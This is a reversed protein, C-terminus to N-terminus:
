DGEFYSWQVCVCVCKTCRDQWQQFCLRFAENPIKRLEATANSKIDEMTVFRTGKLGIQLTPFLWFDSPALDPSYPTHTPSSLFAKRPLEPSVGRCTAPLTTEVDRYLVSRCM